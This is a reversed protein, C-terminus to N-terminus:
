EWWSKIMLDDYPIRVNAIMNIFFIFDYFFLFSKRKHFSCITFFFFCFWFPFSWYDVILLLSDVFSLFVNHFYCIVIRRNELYYTDRMRMLYHRSVIWSYHFNSVNSCHFTNLSEVSFIIQLMIGWHVKIKCVDHWNPFMVLEYKWSTHHHCIFIVLICKRILNIFINRNSCKEM